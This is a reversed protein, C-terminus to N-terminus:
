AEYVIELDFKRLWRKITSVSCGCIAAMDKIRLQDRVQRVLWAKQRYKYERELLAVHRKLWVNADYYNEGTLEREHEYFKQDHNWCGPLIHVLEHAVLYALVYDPVDMLKLSANVRIKFSDISVEECDAWAKAQLQVSSFVLLINHDRIEDFM